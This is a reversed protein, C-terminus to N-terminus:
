WPYDLWIMWGLGLVLRSGSVGCGDLRCGMLRWCGISLRVFGVNRCCVGGSLISGRLMLILWRFPTARRV